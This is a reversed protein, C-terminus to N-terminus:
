RVRYGSEILQHVFNWLEKQGYFVMKEYTTLSCFSLTKTTKSIWLFTANATKKNKVPRCEETM